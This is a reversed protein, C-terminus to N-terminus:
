FDHWTWMSESRSNEAGVSAGRSHRHSHSSTAKRIAQVYLVERDQARRMDRLGVIEEM